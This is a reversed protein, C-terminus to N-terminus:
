LETIYAQLAASIAIIVKALAPNTQAAELASGINLVRDYKEPAADITGNKLIRYPRARVSATADLIGGDIRPSLSLWVLLGTYNTEPETPAIPTTLIPFFDPM